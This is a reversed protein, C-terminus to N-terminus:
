PGFIFDASDIQGAAGAVIILNGALMMACAAARVITQTLSAPQSLHM